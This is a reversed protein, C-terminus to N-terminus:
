HSLFVPTKTNKMVSSTVGGFIDQAFKSHEYAGMVILKASVEDATKLITNAISRDVNKILLEPKVGHRELSSLLHDTGAVTQKGVILLTVKPKTELYHIADGLARACARKGDWAVLAHDALETAEYEDPVILIPRGSQLAVRDPYASLHAESPEHSHGGMVVLDFMRAFTSLNSIDSKELDIFKTRAQLDHEAMIEYFGKSVKDIHEEDLKSIEDLISRPLRAGFREKILPQGHHSIVGTLWADHLKALKIAHKLASKKAAEGSYAVLINKISM